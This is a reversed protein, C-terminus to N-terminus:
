DSQQTMSAIMIVNSDSGLRPLTGQMFTLFRERKSLHNEMVAIVHLKIIVLNYGVELGFSSTAFRELDFEQAIDQREDLWKKHIFRGFLEDNEPVLDKTVVVKRWDAAFDLAEQHRGLAVMCNMVSPCPHLFGTDTTDLIGSM